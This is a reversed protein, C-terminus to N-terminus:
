GLDLAVLKLKPFIRNIENIRGGLFSGVEIVQTYNNEAILRIVANLTPDCVAIKEEGFNYNDIYTDSLYKDNNFYRFKKLGILLKISSLRTLIEFIFSNKPYKKKM